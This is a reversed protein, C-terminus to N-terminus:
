LDKFNNFLCRAKLTPIVHQVQGVPIGPQLCGTCLSSCFDWSDGSTQPRWGRRPGALGGGAGASVQKPCCFGLTPSHPFVTPTEVRGTNGTLSLRHVELNSNLNPLELSDGTPVGAAPCCAANVQGGRCSFMLIQYM